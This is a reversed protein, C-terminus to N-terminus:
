AGDPLCRVRGRQPRAGHHDGPAPGPLGVGIRLVAAHDAPGPRLGRVGRDAHGVLFPVPGSVRPVVAVGGGVRLVVDPVARRPDLIGGCGVSYQARFTGPDHARALEEIPTRLSCSRESGAGVRGATFTRSWNPM